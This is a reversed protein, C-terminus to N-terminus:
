ADPDDGFLVAVHFEVAEFPEACVKERAEARLAVLYGDPHHRYVTLTRDLQDLVWYHPVGTQHYRRLKTVTDTARNSESVIECLWDPRLTIPREKPMTQMRARRWGALDPRYGRGDLAIDVETAIWWGGPKGPSATRRHFAAGISGGTSAQAVGHQITPAAKEVLEGDILELRGDEPQALWDALTYLRRAPTSMDNHYLLGLASPLTRM